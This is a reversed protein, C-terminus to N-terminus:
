CTRALADVGQGAQHAVRHQLLHLAGGGVHAAAHLLAGLAALRGRPVGGDWAEAEGHGWPSGTM